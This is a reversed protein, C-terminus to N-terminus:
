FLILPFPARHMYWRVQFAIGLNRGYAYAIERVIDGEKCGGLIVAARASKAMLSATKLYTKQIYVNWADERPGRKKEELNNTKRAAQEQGVEMKKLQLIEGDVLKSLISATLETVEMDGLRSLAASARGIIFNGGLVSLKKGFASPASPMGRRLPSDDIVDDHLLSATHIMEIIQALRTQTPLITLPTHLRKPIHPPTSLSPPVSPAEPLPSLSSSSSSSSEQAERRRRRRSSGVGEGRGSEGDMDFVRQFERTNLPFEPNWDNLVDPRTLPVDLEEWSTRGGGEHHRSEGLKRDWQSGLGNTARALLLVLLPRIQKSPHLFYYEVIENLGPHGSRLLTLISSRLSSLDSSLLKFPDPRHNHVGPVAVVVPAVPAHLPPKSPTETPTPTPTSATSFASNFSRRTACYSARQQQRTTCAQLCNTLAKSRRSM